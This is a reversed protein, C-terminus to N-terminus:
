AVVAVVIHGVAEEVQVVEVIHAVVQEVEAAVVIHEEVLEVSAGHVSHFHVVHVAAAELLSLVVEVAAVVVEIFQNPLTSYAISHGFLSARFDTKYTEYLYHVTM